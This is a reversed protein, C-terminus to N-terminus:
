EETRPIFGLKEIVYLNGADAAKQFWERSQDYDAEVGEGKLYMDGLKLMSESYGNEAARVYWKM